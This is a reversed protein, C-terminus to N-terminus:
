ANLSRRTPHVYMPQGLEAVKELLQSCYYQLREILGSLKDDRVLKEVKSRAVSIEGQGILTAVDRKTIQWLIHVILELCLKFLHVNSTQSHREQSSLGHPAITLTLPTLALTLSLSVTTSPSSHTTSIKHPQM